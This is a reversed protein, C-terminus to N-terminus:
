ESTVIALSEGGTGVGIERNFLSKCGILRQDGRPNRWIGWEVWTRGWSDQLERQEQDANLEWTAGCDGSEMARKRCGGGGANGSSQVAPTGRKGSEFVLRGRAGM